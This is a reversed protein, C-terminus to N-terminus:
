NEFTHSLMLSIRDKLRSFLGAQPDDELAVLPTNALVKDNLQIELTGYNKGKEIPAELKSPLKVFAKLNQYADKPLTLYFDEDLGLDIEKLQGFWVRAQILPKKAEIVKVTEYFRFGYNLLQETANARAQDSSANMVVGILRTNGHKASAVLCYGASDTHGTKLGDVADDRWLLRNRNMQKINNYTFWKEKYFDYFQPFDRILARALIAMDYPTTYHDPNPLGTSDTFHSDKMGLTQAQANMMEAFATENGAVFESLAVCADNGSDVIIGQLLDQVKVATGEKIFMRSGEMRWAKESVPVDDEMHIQGTSLSKSIIYLTMLKTLSAPPMKDHPALSAIVQGTSYDLLVYGKADLSPTAPITAFRPSAPTLANETSPTNTQNPLTIPTNIQPTTENASTNTQTSTPSTPSSSKSYHHFGFIAIAAIVVLTFLTKLSRM